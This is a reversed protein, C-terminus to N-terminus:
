GANKARLAGVRVRGPVDVFSFPLVVLLVPPSALGEDTRASSFLILGLLDGGGRGHAIEVLALPLVSVVVAFTAFIHPQSNTARSADM